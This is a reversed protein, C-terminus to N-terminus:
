HNIRGEIVVVPETQDHVPMAWEIVQQRRPPLMFQSTEDTDADDKLGITAQLRLPIDSRNRLTIPLTVSDGALPTDLPPLEIALPSLM